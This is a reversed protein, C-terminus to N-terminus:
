TNLEKKGLNKIACSSSNTQHLYNKRNVARKVMMATFIPVSVIEGVAEVWPAKAPL